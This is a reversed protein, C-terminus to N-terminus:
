LLPKHQITKEIKLGVERVLNEVMVAEESTNGTSFIGSGKPFIPCM